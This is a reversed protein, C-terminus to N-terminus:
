AIREFLENRIAEIVVEGTQKRAIDQIRMVGRNPKRTPRADLIQSEVTLTDGPLVPATFRINELGLLAVIRHGGSQIIDALDSTDALSMAIQLVCGGPLIIDGFQTKKMYERDTHNRNLSWTLNVLLSFDGEGLTRSIRSVAKRGVPIGDTISAM